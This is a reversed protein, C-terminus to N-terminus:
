HPELALLVLIDRLSPALALAGNSPWRPGLPLWGVHPLLSRFPRDDRGVVEVVVDGDMRQKEPEGGDVAKVNVKEQISLPISTEVPFRKTKKKQAASITHQGGAKSNGHQRHAPQAASITHQGGAKSNGHQRHALRCVHTTPLYTIKEDTSNDSDYHHANQQRKRLFEKDQRCAEFHGKKMANVLQDKTVLSAELSVCAAEADEFSFWNMGAVAEVHFVGFVRCPSSKYEEHLRRSRFRARECKKRPPM